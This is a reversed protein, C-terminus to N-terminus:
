VRTVKDCSASQVRPEDGASVGGVAAQCASKTVTIGGSTLADAMQAPTVADSALEIRLGVYRSPDLLVQAVFAGLDPRAL